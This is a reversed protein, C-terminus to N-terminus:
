VQHLNAHLQVPTEPSPFPASREARSDGCRAEAGGPAGSRVAGRRGGFSGPVGLWVAFM